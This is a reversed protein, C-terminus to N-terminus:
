VVRCKGTEPHLTSVRMPGSAFPREGPFQPLLANGVGDDFVRQRPEGTVLGRQCVLGGTFARRRELGGIGGFEALLKACEEGAPAEAVLDGPLHHVIEPLFHAAAFRM